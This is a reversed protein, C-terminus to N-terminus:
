QREQAQHYSDLVAKCIAERIPGEAEFVKFYKGQVNGPKSPFGVFLPKGDKQILSFGSITLKGGSVEMEVDAHAKVAGPRTALRVEVKLGNSDM